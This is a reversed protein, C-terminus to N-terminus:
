RSGNDDRRSKDVAVLLLGRIILAGIFAIIICIFLYGMGWVFASCLPVSLICLIILFILIGLGM